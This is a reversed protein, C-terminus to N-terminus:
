RTSEWRSGEREFATGDDCLYTTITIPRSNWAIDIRSAAPRCFHEVRYAEWARAELGRMYQQHVAYCAVLVFLAGVAFFPWNERVFAM